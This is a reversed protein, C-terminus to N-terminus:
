NEAKNILTNEEKEEEQITVELLNPSPHFICFIHAFM